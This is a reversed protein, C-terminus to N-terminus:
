SLAVAYLVRAHTIEGPFSRGLKLGSAYGLRRLKSGSDRKPDNQGFEWMWLKVSLARRAGVPEDGEEDDDNDDVDDGHDGAEDSDGGGRHSKSSSDRWASAGGESLHLHRSQTEIM